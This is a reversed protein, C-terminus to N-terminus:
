GRTTEQDTTTERSLARLTRTTEVEDSMWMPMHRVCYTVKIADEFDGPGDEERWFSCGCIHTVDSDNKGLLTDTREDVSPDIWPRKRDCDVCLRVTPGIQEGCWMCAGLWYVGGGAVSTTPLAALDQQNDLLDAM